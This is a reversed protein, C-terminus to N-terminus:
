VTQEWFDKSKTPAQATKLEKEARELVPRVSAATAGPTMMAAVLEVCTSRLFKQLDALETGLDSAALAAVLAARAKEIPEHVPVVGSDVAKRAAEIAKVLADLAHTVASHDAPSRKTDPVKLGDKSKGAVPKPAPPPPPPTPSQKKAKSRSSGSGGGGFAGMIRGLIGGASKRPVEYKDALRDDVPSSEQGIDLDMVTEDMPPQGPAQAPSPAAVSCPAPTGPGPPLIVCAETIRGKKLNEIDQRNFKMRNKDARLEGDAVMRKLDDESLELEKMVDQSDLEWRDPQEVPQVVKRVEGTRNVIEAEDVVVFATFRTLLTHRVALEVIENKVDHGLRFRDELDTVRARAWLHAIAPLAIERVKVTQDFVGGDALRGRVRVSGGVAGAFFATTARGAFLDPIRAPALNDAGDIALDTVMPAGIERAVGVLAEELAEGPVCCTSTGGGAAALKKLFAENVATDIGITFVRADGIEKQLRKLIQSENGVQGDTILVVVPMRGATDRRARIAAFTENFAPDLETGGDATITRLFKDGAVIGAEDAHVFDRGFWLTSSDFACIAYRDRPGLTALLMSCAKAASTMKVGEMSGSHDVVFVVDRALGLFGDRKPPIISLMGYQKGAGDRYVLLNSWVADKAMRWRLVFDRNLLEDQRTLAIRGNSLKIAHQSCSLDALDGDLEVEISLAVKPDFGKVLRPPTIRSADPVQDTDFETGDGVPERNVPAGPIYRPAVVLPLRLQTTGDDFFPLRESYTIRVRVEEGPPLNGVQVTFVDDREQEMLAARKGQQIANQYAQRAEGREKVIGKITRSGVKMDFASVASGGGLPFIYVAELHDTFPNHFTQEVTTEAVRDAVRSQIKVAALPLMTQKGERVVQLIGVGCTRPEALEM